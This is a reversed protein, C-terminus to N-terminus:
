QIEATYAIKVNQNDYFSYEEKAKEIWAEFEEKSVAHIESPMFAHDKGCLESCQGYYIGPKEIRVWTENLRGPIADTKIGLAPVAFSHIVDAATVLIQINTDVPLVLKNDTSLLRKEGNAANIDADPIMYANFSIGDHDPYEYGWYWQYGTVKITMEPEMTRDAYYLLKFSPIAIIILIVVPIVTWLIEILVNHSFSAPTPNAKHNFRIAVYVILLFVFLVIASIIWLLLNHFDIMYAKVPSAAEQFGLGWNVPFGAFANNTQLTIIATLLLTSIYKTM